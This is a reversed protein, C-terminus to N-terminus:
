SPTILDEEIEVPTIIMDLYCELAIVIKFLTSITYSQKGNEIESLLGPNMKAKKALERQSMDRSKRIQRIISGISILFEKPIHNTRKQRNKPNM